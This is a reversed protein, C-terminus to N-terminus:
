PLRRVFTPLNPRDNDSKLPRYRFEIKDGPKFDNLLRQQETFGSGVKFTSPFQECECELAGLLHPRTTHPETSVVTAELTDFYKIKWFGTTVRKREYLSLPHRVMLGEGFPYPSNLELDMHRDIENPLVLHHEVLALKIFGYDIVPYRREGNGYTYPIRLVDNANIEFFDSLLEYRMDFPMNSKVCDFIFYIPNEVKNSYSNLTGVTEEFTTGCVLEGDPTFPLRIYRPATVINRNRICSGSSGMFDGNYFTARVGDIKSSVYYSGNPLSKVPIKAPKMLM